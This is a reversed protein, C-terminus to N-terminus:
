CYTLAEKVRTSFGTRELLLLQDICSYATDETACGHMKVVTKATGLFTAGGRPNFDYAASLRAHLKELVERQAADATPLLEEIAALATKGVAEVNKLLINGAFGDTVIVDAVDNVVDNGEINGIFNMPLDKLLAYTDLPLRNGKGEERGVSLLGVRPAEMECRSKMFADGMLAFRALERPRCDMNAGCDVLAVLKGDCVPIASCLAPSKIDALLGLRVISGVLLAGTNGASLMGIADPDNKLALLSMVMSSEDRGNFVCTPRDFNTIADTTHSVTVRTADAGMAAMEQEVLTRDGVFHLVFDPALELARLAGRIVPVPGADAGYIDVIITKM